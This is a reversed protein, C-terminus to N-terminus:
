PTPAPSWSFLSFPFNPKWNWGYPFCSRFYIIEKRMLFDYLGEINFDQLLDEASLGLTPDLQPKVDTDEICSYVDYQDLIGSEGFIPLSNFLELEELAQSTSFLSIDEM